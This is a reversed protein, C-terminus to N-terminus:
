LCALLYECCDPPMTNQMGMGHPSRRLLPFCFAGWLCCLLKVHPRNVAIADIFQSSRISLDLLPVLPWLAHCQTAHHRSKNQAALSRSAWEEYWCCWCSGSPRSSCAFCSEQEQLSFSLMSDRSIEMVKLTLGPFSPPGGLTACKRCMERRGQSLAIPRCSSPSLSTRGRPNCATVAPSLPCSASFMFHPLSFIARGYRPIILCYILKGAAKIRLRPSHTYKKKKKRVVVREKSRMINIIM